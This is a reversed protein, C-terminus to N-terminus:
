ATAPPAIPNGCHTCFAASPEIPMGCVACRSAVATYVGPTALINSAIYTAQTANYDRVRGPMFFCEIFGLLTPIGTWCFLVYLIGAVNEGLYFRHIGFTGLFLALLAGLLEDKQVMAMHQYFLAQQAPTADTPYYNAPTM